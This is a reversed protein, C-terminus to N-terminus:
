RAPLHSYKSVVFARLVRLNRPILKGSKTSKADDKSFVHLPITALIFIIDPNRYPDPLARARGARRVTRATKGCVARWDTTEEDPNARWSCPSDIHHVARPRSSLMRGACIITCSVSGVGTAEDQKRLLARLRPPYVWGTSVHLTPQAHKFYGFWGRLMPNLDEIVAGPQRRPHTKDQDPDRGEAGEPEQAEGLAPGSRVPLRPVRLRARSAPLGRCPDERCEACGTKGSGAQVGDLM